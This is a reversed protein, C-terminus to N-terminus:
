NDGMQRARQELADRRDTFTTIAVNVMRGTLSIAKDVHEAGSSEAPALTSSVVSALATIVWDLEAIHEGLHERGVQAALFVAVAELESRDLQTLLEGAASVHGNTVARTLAVADREGPATNPTHM